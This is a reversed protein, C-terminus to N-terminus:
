FRSIFKIHMKGDSISEGLPMGYQVEVISEDNIQIIGLGLSTKRFSSNHQLTFGHDLFISSRFKDGRNFGIDVSIIQFDSSSFQNEQYGRLTSGGGFFVNRSKPIPDNSWILRSSSSLKLNYHNYFPFYSEIHFQKEIFDSNNQIGRNVKLEYQFGKTPLARNDISKNNFALTFSKAIVRQYGLLSGQITPSSVSYTYGIGLNNFYSHYYQTRIENSNLSYLKPFLEHQFRWYFGLNLIPLHPQTIELSIKQSLSDIKKWYLEYSGARKIINELHIDIEGNISLRKNNKGLGLIGSFYNEFQPDIFILGGFTNEDIKGFRTVLPRNLFEYRQYIKNSEKEFKKGIQLKSLSSKINNLFNASLPKSSKIILTDVSNRIYYKRYEIFRNEHNINELKFYGTPNIDDSLRDSLVKNISQSNEISITIIEGEHSYLISLILIIKKFIQM